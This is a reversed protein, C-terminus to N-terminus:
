QTKKEYISNTSHDDCKIFIPRSKFKLKHPPSANNKKKKQTVEQRQQTAYSFYNVSPELTGDIPFIFIKM